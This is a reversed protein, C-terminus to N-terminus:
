LLLFPLMLRPEPALSILSAYRGDHAIEALIREFASQEKDQEVNLDTIVQTRTLIGAREILKLANAENAPPSM